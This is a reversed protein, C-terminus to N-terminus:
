MAICRSFNSYYVLLIPRTKLNFPHMKNKDLYAMLIIICYTLSYTQTNFTTHASLGHIKFSINFFYVTWTHVIYQYFFIQLFKSKKQRLFTDLSMEQRNVDSNVYILLNHIHCTGSFVRSYTSTVTMRLQFRGYNSKRCVIRFCYHRGLRPPM